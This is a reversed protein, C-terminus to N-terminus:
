PAASVTTDTLTGLFAVLDRKEAASLHLSDPPLTQNPLRMGLGIGGGRDYFEVVEDLTRFVGNHMYPATRAVNRLTPTKFAHRNQPQPHFGFLGPDPDITARATLPRAPVGIVEAEAELYSPPATGGFLPPFHCTGCRGKGLFLNFGRTEAPTLAAADGRVARDFRSDLAVLSRVYAAMAVSLMQGTLPAGRPRGLAAAFQVMLASDRGLKHAASDVPLGMERSNQMVEEVQFELYPVRQDAFQFAQLGANLLTPTNRAPTRGPDVNARVRGDSFARAPLHCTACSRAGKLSLAPDFFLRRGLALLEPTPEPAYDPAYWRSDLARDAYINTAGPAWATRYPAPPLELVHEVRRLVDTVPRVFDVLFALRDFTDSGAARELDASAAALSVRLATATAADRKEIAAEYPRLGEEVGHLAEASERLWDGSRTADVGALGLTAVRAVELRAADFGWRAAALTEAPEGRMADIVRQMGEVERRAVTPFETMLRPFLAAEIVQFGTPPVPQAPDDENEAPVPPGNLARVLFPGERDNPATAGFADAYEVLYEIRKYAARARRYAARARGTDVTPPLAGLDHLASALTDLRALPAFRATRVSLGPTREQPLLPREAPLGALWVVAAVVSSLLLASVFRHM